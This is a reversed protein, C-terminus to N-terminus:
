QVTIKEKCLLRGNQVLTFLYNGSMLNFPVLIQQGTFQVNQTFVIKGLMDNIRVQAAGTNPKLSQLTIFNTAPNPYVIVSNQHALHKKINTGKVFVSTKFSDADIVANIYVGGTTTPINYTSSVINGSSMTVVPPSFSGSDSYFYGQLMWFMKFPIAAGTYLKFYAELPFTSATDIPLGGNLTWECVIWSRFAVTATPSNYILASTDSEGWWTSDSLFASVAQANYFENQRSNDYRPNFIRSNNIRIISSAGPSEDNYLAMGLGSVSSNTSYNGTIQGGSILLDNNGGSYIAAAFNSDTSNDVIAASDKMAFYTNKLFLGGGATEAMNARITTQNNLSFLADRVFAGGGNVASNSDIIVSDLIQGFSSIYIGGGDNSAINRSIHVNDELILSEAFIAAGNVAQNSFVKTKGRVKLEGESYIAGGNRSGEFIGSSDAATNNFFSCDGDITVSTGQGAFLAGGGSDFGNHAFGNTFDIDRIVLNTIGTPFNSNFLIIITSDGTAGPDLITKVLSTITGQLSLSKDIVVNNEKFTDASLVLSDNDLSNAIASKLTIYTPTLAIGSRYITVTQATSFICQVM